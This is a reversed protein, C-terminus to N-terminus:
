KDSVIKAKSIQHSLFIYTKYNKIAASLRVYNSASISYILKNIISQIRRNCVKITKNSLLHNLNLKNLSYMSM